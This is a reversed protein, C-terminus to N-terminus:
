GRAAHAGELSLTIKHEGSYILFRDTEFTEVMEEPPSIALSHVHGVGAIAEILAYLDSRHPRRGFAWGAGDWGGTLPHLFRSLSQAIAMEVESAGEMSTLAVAVAVGVPVYEPGAVLLKSTPSRRADVYRRVREILEVSPTPKPDSSRPVIILSVAGPRKGGGSLDYLPVCRARAVEPSALMALDQYDQVTVARDRHRVSRPARKLLSDLTEANAGGRAALHNAVSEVYPVTTKLQTITGAPKNGATGGGTKYQSVRVNGSAAPPIMGSAGDGFRVEGTV